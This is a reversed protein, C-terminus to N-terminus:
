GGIPMEMENPRNRILSVNQPLTITDTLTLELRITRIDEEENVTIKHDSPYLIELRKRVNDLGLKSAAIDEMDNNKSHSLSFLLRNDESHINLSIWKLDIDEASAQKFANELLPLLLLPRILKNELEGSPNFSVDLDQEHRLRELEIYNKLLQIEHDLPIFECRSEYIMFRLLDSLKLVINPSENSDKITHAFLNNLTNFLFNPHIQSKLLDLETKIRNEQEEDAKQQRYFYYKVLKATGAVAAIMVFPLMNRGTGFRQPRFFKADTLSLMLETVGKACLLLALFAIAFNLFQKKYLLRPLLIYLFPYVVIFGGPLYGIANIVASGFPIDRFGSGWAYYLVIAIWFCTHRFWWNEMVLKWIRKAITM